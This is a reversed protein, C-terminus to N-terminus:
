DKFPCPKKKVQEFQHVKCFVSFRTTGRNCGEHRCKKDTREAGLSDYFQRDMHRDIEEAPPPDPAQLRDPVTDFRHYYRFVDLRALDDERGALRDAWDVVDEITNHDLGEQLNEREIILPIGDPGKEESEWDVFTCKTDPTWETEAPLYLWENPLKRSKALQFVERLTITNDSMWHGQQIFSKRAIRWDM